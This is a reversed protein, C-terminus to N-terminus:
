RFESCFHPLVAHNSSPSLGNESLRGNCCEIILLKERNCNKFFIYKM